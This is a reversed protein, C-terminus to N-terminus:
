LYVLIISIVDQVPISQTLSQKCSDEIITKISILRKKFSQRAVEYFDFCFLEHSKSDFKSEHFHFRDNIARLCEYENIILEFPGDSLTSLYEEDSDDVCEIGFEDVLAIKESVFPKSYNRLIRYFTKPLLSSRIIEIVTNAFFHNIFDYPGFIENFKEKNKHHLYITTKISRGGMIVPVDLLESTIETKDRLKDCNPFVSTVELLKYETISPSKLVCFYLLIKGIMDPPKTNNIVLISVNEYLTEIILKKGEFPEDNIIISHSIVKAVIKHENLLFNVFYHWADQNKGSKIESCNSCQDNQNQSVSM